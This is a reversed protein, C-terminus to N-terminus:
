YLNNHNVHIKEPSQHWNIKSIDPLLSFLMRFQGVRIIRGGERKIYVSLHDRYIKTYAGSMRLIQMPRFQAAMEGWLWLFVSGSADAVLFKHFEGVSVGYYELIIVQLDLGAMAPKLDGIRVM